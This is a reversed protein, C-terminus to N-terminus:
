FGHIDGRSIIYWLILSFYVRLNSIFCIVDFILSLDKKDVYKSVTNIIIDNTYIWNFLFFQFFIKLDINFTTLILFKCILKRCEKLFFM